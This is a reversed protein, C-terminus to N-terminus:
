AGRDGSTFPKGHSLASLPVIPSIPHCCGEQRQRAKEAPAVDTAPKNWAVFDDIQGSDDRIRRASWESSGLDAHQVLGHCGILRAARFETLHCVDFFDGQLGRCAPEFPIRLCPWKAEVHHSNDECWTVRTLRAASCPLCGAVRNVRAMVSDSPRGHLPERSTAFDRFPSPRGEAERSRPKAAERSHRDGSLAAAIVEADRVCRIHRASDRALEAVGGPDFKLEMQIDPPRESVSAGGVTRAAEPPKEM